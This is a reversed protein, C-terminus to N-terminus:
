YLVIGVCGSSCCSSNLCIPVVVMKENLHWDQTQGSELGNKQFFGHEPQLLSNIQNNSKFISEKLKTGVDFLNRNPQYSESSARYLARSDNQGDVCTVCRNQKIHAASNLPAM